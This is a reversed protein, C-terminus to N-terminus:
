WANKWDTGNWTQEVGTSSDNATCDSCYIKLGAPLLRTMNATATAGTGGGGSIGVKVAGNYYGGNTITISTIVGGSLTVTTGTPTNGGYSLAGNTAPASPNLTSYSVSPNSTYGSGGNTVTISSVTWGISDRQATTLKPLLLGQIGNSYLALIASPDITYGFTNKGLSVNGSTKNLLNYGNLNTIASNTVTGTFNGGAATIGQPFQPFVGLTYMWTTYNTTDTASQFYVSPASGNVGQTYIRFRTKRPVGSFQTSAEMIFPPPIPYYTNASANWQSTDSIMFAMSDIPVNTKYGSELHLRTRPSTVGIGVRGGNYYADNGNLSWVGSSSSYVTDGVTYLGPGQYYITRSTDYNLYGARGTAPDIGFNISTKVQSFVITPLIFLIILLTKM